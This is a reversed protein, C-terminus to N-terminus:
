RKTDPPLPVQRPSALYAVLDRVEEDKLVDFLGDPMVSLATPKRAEIDAVPVTVEENVTRVTVAQPTEKRVIGTIVRGDLLTFTTM